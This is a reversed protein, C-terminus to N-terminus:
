LGFVDDSHRDSNRGRSPALGGKKAHSSYRTEGWEVHHERAGLFADGRLGGAPGRSPLAADRADGGGGLTERLPGLGAYRAGDLLDVVLQRELLHRQVDVSSDLPANVAHAPGGSQVSSAQSYSKYQKHISSNPFRCLSKPILPM